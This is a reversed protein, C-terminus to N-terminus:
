YDQPDVDAISFKSVSEKPFLDNIWKAATNCYLKPNDKSEGCNCGFQRGNGRNPKKESEILRPNQPVMTKKDKRLDITM